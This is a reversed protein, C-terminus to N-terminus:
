AECIGKFGHAEAFKMGNRIYQSLLLGNAEARKRMEDEYEKEFRVSRTKKAM